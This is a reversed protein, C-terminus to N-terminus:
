SPKVTHERVFHELEERLVELAGVLKEPDDTSEVVSNLINVVALAGFHFAHEAAARSYPELEPALARIINKEYHTWTEHVIQPAM